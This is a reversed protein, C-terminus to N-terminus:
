IVNFPHIQNHTLLATSCFPDHTYIDGHLYLHQGCSVYLLCLSRFGFAFDQMNLRFNCNLKYVNQKM